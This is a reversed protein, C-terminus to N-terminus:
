KKRRSSKPREEGKGSILRINDELSKKVYGLIKIEDDLRDFESEYANGSIQAQQWANEAEELRKPVFIM